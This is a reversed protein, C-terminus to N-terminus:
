FTKSETLLFRERDTLDDVDICIPNTSNYEYKSM